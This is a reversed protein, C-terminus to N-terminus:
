KVRYGGGIKGVLFSLELTDFTKRSRLCCPMEALMLYGMQRPLGLLCPTEVGSTLFQRWEWDQTELPLRAQLEGPSRPSGNSRRCWPM